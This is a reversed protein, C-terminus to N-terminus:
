STAYVFINTVSIVGIIELSGRRLNVLRKDPSAFLKEVITKLTEEPKYLILRDIGSIKNRFLEQKYEELVDSSVEGSISIARMSASLDDEMGEMAEPLSEDMDGEEQTWSLVDKM